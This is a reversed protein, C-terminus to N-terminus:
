PRVTLLYVHDRDSSPGVLTRIAASRPDDLDYIRVAVSSDGDDRALRDRLVADVLIRLPREGATRAGPLYPEIQRVAGAQPTGTSGLLTRLLAAPLEVDNFRRESPPPVPAGRMRIDSPEFLATRDAITVMAVQLPADGPMLLHLLPTAVVALIAALVAAGAFGTWQWPGFLRRRRAPRAQAATRSASALIRDTVAQPVPPAHTAAQLLRRELVREAALANSKALLEAQRAADAGLEGAVWADLLREEEGTLVTATRGRNSLVSIMVPDPSEPQDSGDPPRPNM